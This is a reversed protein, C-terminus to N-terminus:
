LFTSIIPFSIAFPTGSASSINATYFGSFDTPIKIIKGKEGSQILPAIVNVYIISGLTISIFINKYNFLNKYDM